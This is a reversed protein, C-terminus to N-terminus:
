HRPADMPEPSPESFAQSVRSPRRHRTVSPSVNTDDVITLREAVVAQESELWQYIGAAIM